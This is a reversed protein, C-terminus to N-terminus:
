TESGSLNQSDKERIRIDHGSIALWLLGTSREYFGHILAPGSRGLFEVVSDGDKNMRFSLPFSEFQPSYELMRIRAANGNFDTLDLKKLETEVDLGLEVSAVHLVVFDRTIRGKYHKVSAGIDVVGPLLRALSKTEGQVPWGKTFYGFFLMAVAVAVALAIVGYLYITRPRTVM